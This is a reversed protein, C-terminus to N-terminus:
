KHKKKVKYWYYFENKKNFFELIELTKSYDKNLYYNEALLSLNFVFKPNLYQAINLYFNSREYDNQSSYVNGILFFLESMIDNPNRCSFIKKFEELKKDKVWKKGQSILLPANLYDINNATEKAEDFKNNEILYNIYFFIYRSYDADQVEVNDKNNVLNQFYTQTNKDDLYCRLFVENIFAFNGLKEGANLIKKKEFTYLYKKLTDAIILSIRDNYIFAYSQELYDKSKKYKKKKLSDIALLLHAEFFKSNNETLNQKIENTAQQVNGELVLSYIYRELYSDHQKILFKSSKFYKLAESNDKNEYAVIGSFYNSLYRSNFDNLIKSKSYLPSQYLVLILVFKFFKILM